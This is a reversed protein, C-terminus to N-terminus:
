LIYKVLCFSLCILAHFCNASLIALPHVSIRMERGFILNIQQPSAFTYPASKRMDGIKM